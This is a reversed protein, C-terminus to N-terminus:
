CTCCTTFVTTFCVLVLLVNGLLVSVPCLFFGVMWSSSLQRDVQDLNRLSLSSVTQLALDEGDLGRLVSPDFSDEFVHLHNFAAPGRHRSHLQLFCVPSSSSSRPKSTVLYRETTARAFKTAWSRGSMRYETSSSQRSMDRGTWLLKEANSSVPHPIQLCGLTTWFILSPCWSPSCSQTATITWESQAPHERVRLLAGVATTKIHLPTQSFAHLVVCPATASLLRRLRTSRPLHLAGALAQAKWDAQRSKPIWKWCGSRTQTSVSLLAHLPIQWLVPNPFTLCRPTAWRHSWSEVRLPRMVSFFIGPWSLGASRIVLYKLPPFVMLSMSFSPDVACSPRVLMTSPKYCCHKRSPPKARKANFGLPTHAPCVCNLISGVALRAPLCLGFGGATVSTTPQQNALAASLPHPCLFRLVREETGHDPNNQQACNSYSNRTLTTTDKLWSM